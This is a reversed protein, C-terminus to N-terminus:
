KKNIRQFKKVRKKILGTLGNEKLGKYLVETILVPKFYEFNQIRNM